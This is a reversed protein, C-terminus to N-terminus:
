NKRKLISKPQHNTSFQVPIVREKPPAVHIKPATVTLIGDNNLDSVVGQANADPPLEYRRKFSRTVFGGHEDLKEEHQAEILLMNESVKVQIEEPAFHSVDVNVTFKDKQDSVEASGTKEDAANPYASSNGNNNGILKALSESSTETHQTADQGDLTSLRRPRLYYPLSSRYFFPDDLLGTTQSPRDWWDNYFGRRYYSSPLM